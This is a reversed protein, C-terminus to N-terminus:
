SSENRMRVAKEIVPPTGETITIGGLDSLAFWRADDADDAALLDGGTPRCLYDILVYHYRVGGKEDPTIREFVEVVPGVEVELGVEERVERRIGDALNEGLELAGGPLSWVGKLPEKGRRVLLVDNDRLIVAGVGVIPQSPYERSMRREIAAYPQAGPLATRGRDAMPSLTKEFARERRQRWPGEM